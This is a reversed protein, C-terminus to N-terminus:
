RSKYKYRYTEPGEEKLRGLRPPSNVGGYWRACFGLKHTIGIFDEYELYGFVWLRTYGSAERDITDAQFTLDYKTEHNWSKPKEGVHPGIVDGDNFSEVHEYIPIKPLDLRFTHCVAITKLVAPTRGYNTFQVEIKCKGEPLRHFQGDTTGIDNRLVLRTVAIIPQEVALSHNASKEASEAAAIAARATDRTYKLTFGLFALGILGAVTQGITLGAIWWAARAMSEQAVLDKEEREEKRKDAAEASNPRAVEPQTPNIPVVSSPASEQNQAAPESKTAPQQQETRPRKYADVALFGVLILVGALALNQLWYSRPM